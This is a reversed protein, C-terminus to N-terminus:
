FTSLSKKRAAIDVHIVYDKNCTMLYPVAMNISFGSLAAQRGPLILTTAAVPGPPVIVKLKLRNGCTM